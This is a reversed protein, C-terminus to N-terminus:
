QSGGRKKNSQPADVDTFFEVDDDDAAYWDDDVAELGQIEDRLRENRELREIHEQLYDNHAQLREVEKGSSEMCNKLYKNEEQLVEIQHKLQDLKSDRGVMVSRSPTGGKRQVQSPAGGKIQVQSPAGGKRQVQSPAGGKRQVQSPAGGKRQVQRNTFTSPGSRSAPKKNTEPRKVERNAFAGAGPGRGRQKFQPTGDNDEEELFSMDSSAVIEEAQCISCIKSKQEIDQKTMPGGCKPCKAKPANELISAQFEDVDKDLQEWLAKRDRNMMEKRRQSAAEVGDGNVGLFDRFADSQNQFGEEEEMIQRHLEESVDNRSDRSSRHKAAAAWLDEMTPGNEAAGKGSGGNKSPEAYSLSGDENVFDNYREYVEPILYPSDDDDDVGDDTSGDDGVIAQMKGLLEELEAISRDTPRLVPEKTFDPDKQYSMPKSTAFLNELANELDQPTNIGYDDDEDEDFDEGFTSALDDNKMYTPKSRFTAAVRGFADFNSFCDAKDLSLHFVGILYWPRM